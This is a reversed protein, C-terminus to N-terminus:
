RPLDVVHAIEEFSTVGALVKLIADQAITLYGQRRVHKAIDRESPNDRLFSGLEDDMFIAEFVGTRGHYSAEEPLAPDPSWVQDSQAPRAYGEPLDALVREIITREKDTVLRAVKKGPDLTRVLRQAMAVTIASAFEKPDIGLDVLRPFTGAASNTHLTSFVFHGTQAAEIATKAVEDDRIEGVMIIEPDQRLISRLGSAFTYGEERQEQGHAHDSTTREGAHVQTQTVGPLRYEIPDELTVIKVGPTHVERLFAYLTTTKGSGTPGTTLLMGNPRRIEDALRALLRPELGM